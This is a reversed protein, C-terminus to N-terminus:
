WMERCSQAVGVEGNGDGGIGGGEEGGLAGSIAWFM